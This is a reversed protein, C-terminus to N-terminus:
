PCWMQLKENADDAQKKAFNPMATRLVGCAKATDGRKVTVNARLTAAYYLEESSKLQREFQGLRRLVDNGKAPDKSDDIMGVMRQVFDVSSGRGALPPT